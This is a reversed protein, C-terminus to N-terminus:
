NKLLFSSTVFFLLNCFNSFNESFIDVISNATIFNCAQLTFVAVRSYVSKVASVKRFINRFSILKLFMCILFFSHYVTTKIYWFIDAAMYRVARLKVSVAGVNSRESFSGFIRLHKCSIKRPPLKKGTFNCTYLRDICADGFSIGGCVNERCSSQWIAKRFNWFIYRQQEKELLIASRWDIPQLKMWFSVQM